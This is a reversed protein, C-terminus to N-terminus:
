KFKLPLIGSEMYTNTVEKRKNSKVYIMLGIVLVLVVLCVIIIALIGETSLGSNNKKFFFQRNWQNRDINILNEKNKFLVVLNADGLDSFATIVNGISNQNPKCQLEYESQKLNFVFCTENRNEVINNNESELSYQLSLNQYDFDFENELLSGTINFELRNEMIESNNLVFLPKTFNERPANVLNNQYLLNLIELNTINYNVSNSELVELLEISQITEDTSDYECFYKVKNAYDIHILDCRVKKTETLQDYSQLRRFRIYIM